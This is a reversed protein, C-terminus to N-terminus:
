TFMCLGYSIYVKKKKKLWLISAVIFFNGWKHKAFNYIMISFICMDFFKFAHVISCISLYLHKDKDQEYMGGEWALHQQSM